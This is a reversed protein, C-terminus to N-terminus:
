QKNLWAEPDVAAGNDFLGFFIGRGKPEADTGARGVTQGATLVDGTVVYLLSLNGYFTLYDGHEVLVFRGFEPMFDIATVRGAAVATVEASAESAIVV